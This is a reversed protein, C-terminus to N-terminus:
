PLGGHKRNILVFKTDFSNSPLVNRYPYKSFDYRPCGTLKIKESQIAESAILQQLQEKGWCYYHDVLENANQSKLLHSHKPWWRGVGETDLVAVKIGYIKYLNLLKLNNKRVYNVLVVDPKLALADFNQVDMPVIFVECNQELLFSAILLIGDLDRLPNDLVLCIRKM